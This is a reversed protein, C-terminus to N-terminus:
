LDDWATAIFCAGGGGGGGSSSATPSSADDGGGGGSSPLSAAVQLSQIGGQEDPIIDQSEWTGLSGGLVMLDIVEGGELEMNHQDDNNPVKVYFNNTDISVWEDPVRHGVWGTVPYSANEVSAVVLTGLAPKKDSTSVKLALVDNNVYNSTEETRVPTLASVYEPGGNKPTSKAQFFYETDPTLGTVQVKMVGIEEAPPHEESESTVVAGLAPTKGEPDVFVNVTASAPESTTWVVCFQKPTVDTVIPEHTVAAEGIGYAFIGMAILMTLLYLRLKAM